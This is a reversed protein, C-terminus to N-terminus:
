HPTEHRRIFLIRLGSYCSLAAVCADGPNREDELRQKGRFGQKM